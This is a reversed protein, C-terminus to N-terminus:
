GLERVPAGRWSRRSTRSRRDSTAPTPLDDAGPETDFVDLGAGAIWGERLARLEGAGIMGRTRESLVKHLSVFDAREMLERKGAARVVGHEAAREETLNPSWALVDM